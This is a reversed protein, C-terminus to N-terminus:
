EGVLARRKEAVFRLHHQVHYTAHFLIHHLTMLGAESHVTQRGWADAPLSALIRGMQARTARVVALEEAPDRGQYDFAAMYKNEDVGMLLPRELAITRKMRDALFQECDALHGVVELTSWKGAVPRALLQERTMGAVAAEVEAPGRM